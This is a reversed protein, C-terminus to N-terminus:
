IVTSVKNNLEQFFESWANESATNKKYGKRVNTYCGEQCNQHRAVGVLFGRAKLIKPNRISVCIQFFATRRRLLSESKAANYWYNHQPEHLKSEVLIVNM